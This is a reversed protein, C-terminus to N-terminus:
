AGRLSRLATSVVACTAPLDATVLEFCALQRAIQIAADLGANRHALANLTNAYLRAGAQAASIRRSAARAGGRPYQLFLIAALPVPHGQVGAPLAATTVHFGRSTVVTPSPLPYTDPPPAKLTLARPYPAVTLTTLDIPALEDSLYRFGHHVLAWTTTSKGGGSAAVLMVGRGGSALVGAHVFYLRSRAQQVRVIVDQDLDLLLQGPDTAAVPARGDRDLRWANEARRITYRLSPRPVDARLQGYHTAVLRRVKADACRIAVGVGLADFTLTEAAVPPRGRSSRVPGPRDTERPRPIVRHLPSSM